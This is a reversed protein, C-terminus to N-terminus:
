YRGRFDVVAKVVVQFKSGAVSTSGAAYRMGGFDTLSDANPDVNQFEMERTGKAVWTLRLKGAGGSPSGSDPGDIVQNFNYNPTSGQTTEHFTSFASFAVLGPNVDYIDFRMARVRYEQWQSSMSAWEDQQRLSVCTFLGLLDATTSPVILVSAGIEVRVQSQSANIQSLMRDVRAGDSGAFEDVIRVNSVRNKGQSRRSKAM